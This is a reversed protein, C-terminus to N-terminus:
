KRRKFLGSRSANEQILKTDKDVESKRQEFEVIFTNWLKRLWVTELVTYPNRSVNCATIKSDLKELKKFGESIKQMSAELESFTHLLENMEIYSYRNVEKSLTKYALELWLHIATATRAFQALTRDIRKKELMKIRGSPVLSWMVTM